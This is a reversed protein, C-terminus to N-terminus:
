VLGSILLALIGVGVSLQMFSFSSQEERLLAKTRTSIDDEGVTLGIQYSGSRTIGWSGFVSSVGVVLIVLGAWFMWDGFLGFTHEKLILIVGVVIVVGLEGILIRILYQLLSTWWNNKM